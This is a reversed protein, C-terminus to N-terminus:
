AINKKAISTVRESPCAGVSMWYEYREKSLVTEDTLPNFWGLDEIPRGDRRCRSDIVIIRYFPRKKRGQRKLRIATSM